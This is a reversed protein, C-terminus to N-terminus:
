RVEGKRRRKDQYMRSDALKLLEEPTDAEELSACGASVGVVEQGCISISLEKIKERLLALVRDFASCDGGVLLVVFEDGGLRAAVDTARISEELAVAFGKLIRDGAEHGWTDNVAKFGDLDMMAVALKEGTRRAREFAKRLFEVFYGRNFLGTLNDRISAEYARERAFELEELTGKLTLMSNVRIYFDYLSFPARLFDTAGLHFAELIVM